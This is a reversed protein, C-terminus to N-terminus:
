YVWVWRFVYRDRLHFPARFYTIIHCMALLFYWARFYSYHLSKIKWKWAAFIGSATRLQVSLHRSPLTKVPNFPFIESHHIYVSCHWSSSPDNCTCFVLVQYNFRFRQSAGWFEPRWFHSVFYTWCQVNYHCPCAPGAKTSLGVLCHVLWGVLWRFCGAL